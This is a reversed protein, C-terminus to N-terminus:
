LRLSHKKDEPKAMLNVNEGVQVVKEDHDQESPCLM